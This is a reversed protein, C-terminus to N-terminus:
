NIQNIIKQLLEVSFGIKSREDQSLQQVILVISDVERQREEEVLAKGKLTVIFLKSRRDNKSHAALLLGAKVLSAVLVSMTAATVGRYSALASLSQPGTEILCQIVSFRATSVKGHRASRQLNQHLDDIFNQILEASPSNKSSKM